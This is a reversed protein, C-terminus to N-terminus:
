GRPHPAFAREFASETQGTSVAVGVNGQGFSSPAVPTPPIGLATRAATVAEAVKAPDVTGDADLLDALTAGAAWLAAPKLKHDGALREAEARRLAELQAALGDRETEVERLQRRYKAAERGPSTDEGEVPETAPDAPEPPTTTDEVAPPTDQAAEPATETTTTDSM